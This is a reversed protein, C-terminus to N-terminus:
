SVRDDAEQAAKTEQAPPTVPSTVGGRAWETTMARARHFRDVESYRRQRSLAPVAVAVVAALVAVVVLVALV